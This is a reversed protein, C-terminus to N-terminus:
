YEYIFTFAETHCNNNNVRAAPRHTLKLGPIVNKNWNIRITISVFTPIHRNRVNYIVFRLQMRMRTTCYLKRWDLLEISDPDNGNRLQYLQYSSHQTCVLHKPDQNNCESIILFLLDQIFKWVPVTRKRQSDINNKHLRQIPTRQIALLMIFWFFACMCWFITSRGLFHFM